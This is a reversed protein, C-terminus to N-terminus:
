GWECFGAAIIALSVVCMTTGGPGRFSAASNGGGDGNEGTNDETALNDISGTARVEPEFLVCATPLDWSTSALVSEVRQSQNFIDGVQVDYEAFVGMDLEVSPILHTANGSADNGEAVECNENVGTVQSVNLSLNPLSVFAGIGGDIDTNMADIGTSIGLLFQPKFAVNLAMSTVETSAEFPLTKFTTDEFGTIESDGYTTMNILIRSYDPVTVNFGYSFGIDGGVEVGLVFEPLIQPGFTVVGAIQFPTLPITPLAMTLEVLPEELVLDFELEIQSFLNRVLLEVSGNTFFGIADEVADPVWTDEIHFQGQSLQIDGQLTCTKCRVVLPLSPLVQDAIPNDVPYITHNKYAVDFNANASSNLGTETPAPPFAHTPTTEQRKFLAPDRRQIEAPHRQLFSVKTSSFAEHWDMRVKELTVMFTEPDEIVDVVRHASREGERDCGDHSTVVLSEPLTGIVENFSKEAAASAFTLQIQSDTCSVNDMSADFDELALIPWQSQVDLTTSLVSEEVVADALYDFSAKREPSAIPFEGRAKLKSSLTAASLRRPEPFSLGPYRRNLSPSEAQVVVLSLLLGFFVFINM